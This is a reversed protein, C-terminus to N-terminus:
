PRVETDEDEGPDFSLPLETGSLDVDDARALAAKLQVLQVRIGELDEDSVDLGISAAHQRMWELDVM